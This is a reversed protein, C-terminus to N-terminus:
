DLNERNGREAQKRVEGRWKPHTGQSSSSKVDLNELEHKSTEEAKPSESTAGIQIPVVLKTVDTHPDKSKLM